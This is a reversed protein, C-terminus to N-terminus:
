LLLPPFLRARAVRKRGAGISPLTELSSCEIEGAERTPHPHPPPSPTSEKSRSVDSLFRQIVSHFSDFSFSSLSSFSSSDIPTLIEYACFVSPPSKVAARSRSQSPIPHSNSPSSDPGCSGDSNLECQQWINELSDVTPNPIPNIDIHTLKKPRPLFHPHRGEGGRDGQRREIASTSPTTRWRRPNWEHGNEHFDDSKIRKQAM